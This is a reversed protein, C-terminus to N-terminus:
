GLCLGRRDHARRPGLLCEIRSVSAQLHARRPRRPQCRLNAELRHRTRERAGRRCPFRRCHATEGPQAWSEAETATVEYCGYAIRAGYAVAKNSPITWPTTTWILVSAGSLDESANQLRFRVWIETSTKDRYEIEAEALATKEVPSWMVPKSGQYLSGNMVFKMFEEAIVAEAEFDMTLYPDDWKGTVGLRQFSTGSSM